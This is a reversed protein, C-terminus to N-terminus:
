SQGGYFRQSHARAEEANTIRNRSWDYLIRDIYRLSLKGAFVAEKLAFLIIEETYGDQDLWITITECEMPSLLRGFEQEFVTFLSIASLKPAAPESQKGAKKAERKSAALWEAAKMLWGNWNYREAQLGTVEDVYDDITLYGEKMLRGLWGGVQRVTVGMRGALEEPTPFDNRENQAYQMINLLLLAESDSLGLSNYCRLLLGPIYVGGEGYAAAMGHSYAKWIEDNM